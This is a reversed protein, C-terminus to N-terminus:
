KIKDRARYYASTVTSEPKDMAAAIQKFTMDEIIHFIIIQREEEDLPAIMSFFADQALFYEINTDTVVTEQMAVFRKTTRVKDKACNVTIKYLWGRPNELFPIEHASNWVKVLIDDVVEEALFSDRTISKAAVLIMRGYVEYFSKLANTDRSAMKKVLKQFEAQEERIEKRSNM